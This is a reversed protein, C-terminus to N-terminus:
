PAMSDAAPRTLLAPAALHLERRADRPLTDPWWILCRARRGAKWRLVAIPGRWELAAADLRTGDLHAHGATDIVLERAPERALRLIRWTAAALVLPSAVAAAPLPLESLWLAFCACVGIAAIMYRLLRSPYWALRLPLPETPHFYGSRSSSSTSSRTM